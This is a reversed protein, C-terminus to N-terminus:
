STVTSMTFHLWHMWTSSWNMLDALNWPTWCSLVARCVATYVCSAKRWAGSFPGTLWFLSGRPYYVTRLMETVKKM